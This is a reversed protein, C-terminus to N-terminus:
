EYQQGMAPVCFGPSNLVLPVERVPQGHAAIMLQTVLPHVIREAGHIRAAVVQKQGPYENGCLRAETIAKSDTGLQLVGSGPPSLGARRQAVREDISQFRQLQVSSERGAVQQGLAILDIEPDATERHLHAAISKDRPM